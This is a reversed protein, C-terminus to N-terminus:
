KINKEIDDLSRGFTELIFYNFEEKSKIERYSLSLHENIINWLILKENSFDRKEIIRLKNLGWKKEENNLSNISKFILKYVDGSIYKQFTKLYRDFEMNYKQSDTSKDTRLIPNNEIINNKLTNDLLYAYENFLNIKTYEDEPSIKTITIFECPMGLYLYALIKHHGDLIFEVNNDSNNNAITLVKPKGGSKILNKYFTVRENSILSYPQTFMYNFNQNYNLFHYGYINSNENDGYESHIDAFKLLKSFSSIEYEGSKLLKLFTLIKSELEEESGNILVENFESILQKRDYEANLIFYHGVTGENDNWDAIIPKLIKLCIVLGDFSIDIINQGNEIIVNKNM